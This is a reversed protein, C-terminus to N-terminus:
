NLLPLSQNTTTSSSGTSGDGLQFVKLPFVEASPSDLEIIASGMGTTKLDDTQLFVMYADGPVDKVEFTGDAGIIASYSLRTSQGVIAMNEGELGKYPKGEQDVLSGKITGYGYYFHIEKGVDHKYSDKVGIYLKIISTDEFGILDDGLKLLNIFDPMSEEKISLIQNVEDLSFMDDINDGGRGARLNIQYIDEFRFTAGNSATYKIEFTNESAKFVGQQSINTAKFKIKSLPECELDDVSCAGGVDEIINYTSTRLIITTSTFAEHVGDSVIAKIKFTQNVGTDAPMTLTIYPGTQVKTWLPTGETQVWTITLPDNDADEVRVELSLSKFASMSYEENLSSISPPTKNMCGTTLLLYSMIIIMKLFITTKM